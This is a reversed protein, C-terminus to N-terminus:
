LLLFTLRAVRKVLAAHVQLKCQIGYPFRILRALRPRIGLADQALHDLPQTQLM